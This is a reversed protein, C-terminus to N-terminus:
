RSTKYQKLVESANSLNQEPEWSNHVSSCGKWAILYIRKGRSMKDALISEIEYEESDEIIDPPPEPFNKSHVPNEHYSTLKTAHFTPYVKWTSPLNLTYTVSGELPFSM